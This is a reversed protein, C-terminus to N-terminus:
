CWYGYEGLDEGYMEKPVSLSFKNLLTRWTPSWKRLERSRLSHNQVIETCILKSTPWEFPYFSEYLLFHKNPQIKNSDVINWLEKREQTRKWHQDGWPFLVVLKELPLFRICLQTLEKWKGSQLFIPTLWLVIQLPLSSTSQFPQFIPVTWIHTCVSLFIMCFVRHNFFFFSNTPMLYNFPLYLIHWSSM